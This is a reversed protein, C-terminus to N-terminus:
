GGAARAGRGAGEGGRVLAAVEMLDATRDHGERHRALSGVYAM